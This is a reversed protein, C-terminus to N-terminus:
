CMLKFQEDNKFQKSTNKFVNRLQEITHCDKKLNETLASISSPLFGLTDVFRIEFYCIM